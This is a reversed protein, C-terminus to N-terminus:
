RRTIQMRNHLPSPHLPFHLSPLSASSAATLAAASEHLGWQRQLARLFAACFHWAALWAGVYQESWEPRQKEGLYKGFQLFPGGLPL